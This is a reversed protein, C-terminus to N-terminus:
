LNQVFQVGDRRAAERQGNQARDTKGYLGTVPVGDLEPFRGEEVVIDGLSPPLLVLSESPALETGRQEQRARAHCRMGPSFDSSQHLRDSNVLPRILESELVAHAISQCAWNATPPDHAEPRAFLKGM